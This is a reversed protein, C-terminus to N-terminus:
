EVYGSGYLDAEYICEERATKQFEIFCCEEAGATGIQNTEEWTESESELVRPM